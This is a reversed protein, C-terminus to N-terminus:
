NRAELVMNFPTETARRVSAFGAQRAIVDELRSQGAQAGLAAGVEQSLSCPTCVTTSFAYYVRSVPNLNDALRDQAMPEVVMLSGDEALTERVRAAAGAPDGMDHLCDFMTVLDWNSGPLEKAKAVEFSLNTLGRDAALRRAEEVSPEHIDYGTFNSNPFAEAMIMTSLGLGCGVDAVSAGKELKEVIGDLAPLWDQVLHTQYSPKFFKAVGCFLCSDHEGWGVGAGTRFAETLRPEDVYLSRISLFGGTMLFPSQPNSFIWQQEPNMSFNGSAEDFEVYGSAANASLWERVYREHCGTRAALGAPDTPGGSALERYLGLKEGTIVLSGMAAAGLETVMKIAMDHMRSEDIAPAPTTVPNM